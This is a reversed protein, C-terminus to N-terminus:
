SRRRRRALILAVVAFGLWSAGLPSRGHVRCGCGGDDGGEPAPDMPDTPDTPDPDTPDTPDTPDDTSCDPDPSSAPCVTSCGNGAACGACDPDDNLWDPCDANCAGDAACACDPDAACGATCTGDAECSPETPDVRSIFEDIWAQFQQVDTNGGLGALCSSETGYSTVGALVEVGDFTMFNSGGSDGYCGSVGDRPAVMMYDGDISDFTVIGQRKRGSDDGFDVATGFGVVRVDQGAMEATLPRENRRAPTVTSASELEILGMDAVDGDYDPHVLITKAPIQMGSSPVNSNTGFFLDLAAATGGELCHAATLVVKPTILTGSCFFYGGEMLAVTEPHGEDITGNIVPDQRTSFSQDGGGACAGALLVALILAPKGHTRM